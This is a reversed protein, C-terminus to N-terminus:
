RVEDCGHDGAMWDCTDNHISSDSCVKRRSLIPPWIKSSSAGSVVRRIFKTPTLAETSM